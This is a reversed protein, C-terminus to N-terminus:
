FYIIRGKLKFEEPMDYNETYLDADYWFCCKGQPNATYMEPDYFRVNFDVSYKHSDGDRHTQITLTNTSSSNEFELRGSAASYHKGAIASDNITEYRYRFKRGGWNNSDGGPIGVTFTMSNGENASADVSNAVVSYTLGFAAAVFMGVVIRIRLSVSHQPTFISSYKM